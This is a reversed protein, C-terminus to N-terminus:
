AADIPAKDFRAIYDACARRHHNVADLVRRALPAGLAAKGAMIQEITRQNIALAASARSPGGLLRIGDCFQDQTMM